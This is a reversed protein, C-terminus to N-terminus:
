TPLLLYYIQLNSFVYIDILIFAIYVNMMGSNM